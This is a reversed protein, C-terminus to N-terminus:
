WVVSVRLIIEFSVCLSSSSGEVDRACSLDYFIYTTTAIKARHSMLSSRGNDSNKEPPSTVILHSKRTDCIPRPLIVADFWLDNSRFITATKISVHSVSLQPRERALRRQLKKKFTFAQYRQTGKSICMWRTQKMYLYFYFEVQM